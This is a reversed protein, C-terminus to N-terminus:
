AISIHLSPRRKMKANRRGASALFFTSTIVPCAIVVAVVYSRGNWYNKTLPKFLLPSAPSTLTSGPWRISEM